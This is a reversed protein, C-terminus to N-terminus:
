LSSIGKQSILQITKLIRENAQFNGLIKQGKGNLHLLIEEYLPIWPNTSSFEPLIGKQLSRFGKYLPSEGSKWFSHGDNNLIMRVQTTQIDIEFQFYQREGGAELFVFVNGPYELVSIARSEVSQNKPKELKSFHLKPIKAFLFDLFDIAHTGDHLLPGGGLKEFAIGPSLGSTLVSARLTMIKGWEGSVLADRVHRYLPHYRREHNVWIKTKFKRQLKKLKQLEELSTCIPKEILINPIGLEMAFKTNEFHAVSSSAVICLDYKRKKILDLSSTNKKSDLNWDSFFNNIKEPDRDYVGELSFFKSLSSKLLVGSHTCPHYRLPDKELSSAIRGLGLLLVKYKM